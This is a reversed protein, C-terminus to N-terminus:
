GNRLRRINDVKLGAWKAEPTIVVPLTTFGMSKIREEAVVNVTIDIYDYPVDLKELERVTFKCQVCGPKGYVKVPRSDQSPM